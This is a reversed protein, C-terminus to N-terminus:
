HEIFVVPNQRCPKYVQSFGVGESRGRGGAGATIVRQCFLRCDYYRVMCTTMTVPSAAKPWSSEGRKAQCNAHHNYQLSAGQFKWIWVHRRIPCPCSERTVIGGRESLFLVYSRHLTGTKWVLVSCSVFVSSTRDKWVLVMATAHLVFPSVHLTIQASLFFLLESFKPVWINWAMTQIVLSQNRLGCTLYDSVVTNTMSLIYATHYLKKADKQLQVNWKNLLVKNCHLFIM